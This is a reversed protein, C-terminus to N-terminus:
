DDGSQRQMKMVIIMNRLGDDSLGKAVKPGSSRLLAIVERPGVIGHFANWARVILDNTDYWRDPQNYLGRLRIIETLERAIQPYDGEYGKAHLIYIAKEQNTIDKRRIGELVRAMERCVKMTDSSSMVQISVSYPLSECETVPTADQDAASDAKCTTTCLLHISLGVLLAANRFNM